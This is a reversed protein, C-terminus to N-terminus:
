TSLAYRKFFAIDLRTYKTPVAGVSLVLWGNESYRRKLWANLALYRDANAKWKETNM